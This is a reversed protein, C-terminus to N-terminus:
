TQKNTQKDIKRNRNTKEKVVTCMCPYRIADGSAQANPILFDAYYARKKKPFLRTSEKANILAPAIPISSDGVSRVITEYMSDNRSQTCMQFEIENIVM